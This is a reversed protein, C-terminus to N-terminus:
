FDIQENLPARAHATRPFGVTHKQKRVRHPPQMNAGGYDNHHSFLGCLKTYPNWATSRQAHETGAHTQTSPHAPKAKNETSTQAIAAVLITRHIRYHALFTHDGFFLFKATEKGNNTAKKERDRQGRLTGRMRSRLVAEDGRRPGVISALGSLLHEVASCNDSLLNVVLRTANRGKEVLGCVFVGCSSSGRTRVRGAAFGDRVRVTLCILRSCVLDACCVACRTGQVLHAIQQGVGLSGVGCLCLTERQCGQCNRCQVFTSPTTRSILVRRVWAGLTHLPCIWKKLSNNFHVAPRRAASFM